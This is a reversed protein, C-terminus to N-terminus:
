VGSQQSELSSGSGNILGEEYKDDSNQQVPHNRNFAKRYKYYCVAAVIVLLAFVVGFGVSLITLWTEHSKNIRSQEEERALDYENAIKLKLQIEKDKMQQVMFEYCFMYCTKKMNDTPEVCGDSCPECTASYGYYWDWGHSVRCEAQKAEFDMIVRSIKGDTM